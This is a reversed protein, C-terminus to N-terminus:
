QVLQEQRILSSGLGLHPTLQAHTSPNRQTNWVDRSTPNTIQRGVRGSLKGSLLKWSQRRATPLNPILQYGRAADSGDDTFLGDVDGKEMAYLLMSQQWGRFDARKSLVALPSSEKTDDAM